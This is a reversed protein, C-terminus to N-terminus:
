LVFVRNRNRTCKPWFSNPRQRFRGPDIGILGVIWHFWLQVCLGSSGLLVPHIRFQIAVSISLVIYPYRFPILSLPDLPFLNLASPFFSVSPGEKREITTFSGKRHIGLYDMHQQQQQNKEKWQTETDGMVFFSSSWEISETLSEEWRNMETDQCICLEAEYLAISSEGGEELLKM